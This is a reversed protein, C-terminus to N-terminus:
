EIKWKKYSLDRGENELSRSRSQSRCTACHPAGAGDGPHNLCCCCRPVSCSCRPRQLFLGASNCRGLFSWGTKFNVLRRVSETLRCICLAARGQYEYLRVATHRLCLFVWDVDTNNILHGCSPSGSQWQSPLVDQLAACLCFPFSLYCVPSHHQLLWLLVAAFSKQKVTQRKRNM